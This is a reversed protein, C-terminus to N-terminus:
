KFRKINKHLASVMEKIQTLARETHVKYKLGDEGESLETKLRSVYEYLKHIEQVKRKVAKVAQHFQEPKTRTKTETRFKSYNENLNGGDKFAKNLMDIVNEVGWSGFKSIQLANKLSTTGPERTGIAVRFDNLRPAGAAKDDVMILDKDGLKYIYVTRKSGYKNVQQDKDVLKFNLGKQAAYDTIMAEINKVAWQQKAEEINNEPLPKKQLVLNVIMMLGDATIHGQRYASMLTKKVDPALNPNNLTAIVEDTGAAEMLEDEWGEDEEDEIREVDSSHMSYVEGDRDMEVEVFGRHIAVITGTEGYFENGYVVKVRDDEQFGEELGHSKHGVIEDWADQDLTKKQVVGAVNEMTAARREIEGKDMYPNTEPGWEGQSKLKRIAQDIKNLMDGYKDAVPGGEPEAEQEMDREIEARKRLLMAIKAQNPNVKRVQPKPADKKARIAMLVPDNIGAEDIHHGKGMGLDFAGDYKGPQKKSPVLDAKVSLYPYKGKDGLFKWDKPDSSGGTSIWGSDGKYDYKVGPKLESEDLAEPFHAQGEKTWKWNPFKKLVDHITNVQLENTRNGAGDIVNISFTGTSPEFYISSDTKTDTGIHIKGAAEWLERYDMAKAGPHTSHKFKANFPASTSETKKKKFAKPTFTQEGPGTMATAGATSNGGTFSTEKIIEHIAKFLGEKTLKIKNM